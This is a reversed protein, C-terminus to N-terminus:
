PTPELVPNLLALLASIDTRRETVPRFEHAAFCGDWPAFYLWLGGKDTSMSVITHVEGFRPGPRPAGTAADCWSDTLGKDKPTVRQGTHLPM